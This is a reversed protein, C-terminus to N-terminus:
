RSGSRRRLRRTTPSPYVSRGSPPACAFTTADVVTSPASDGAGNFAVVRYFYRTNCTLGTDVYTTTDAALNGSVDVWGSTGNPSREVRFGTEDSVDDWTVTIQTSSDAVAAPNTPASPVAAASTFAVNVGISFDGGDGIVSTVGTSGAAAQVFDYAALMGGANTTDSREVAAAPTPTSVTKSSATGYFSVVTQSDATTTIAPATFTSNFVTDMAKASTAVIASPDGASYDLLVGLMGVSGVSYTFNYTTSGPTEAGTVAKSYVALQFAAGTTSLQTQVEVWGAPATVTGVNNRIRLGVLMVHGTAASAPLTFTISSSGANQEDKAVYTASVIEGLIFAYDSPLPTDGQQNTIPTADDLVCNVVWLDAELNQIPATIFTDSFTCNYVLQPGVNDFSASEGVQMAFFATTEVGIYCTDFVVEVVDGYEPGAQWVTQIYTDGDPADSEAAYLCDMWTNTIRLSTVPWATQITDGHLGTTNDIVHDSFWCNDITWTGSPHVMDTAHHVYCSHLAVVATQADPDVAPVATEFGIGVYHSALSWTESLENSADTTDVGFECDTFTVTTNLGLIRVWFNIDLKNVFWCDTFTVTADEVVVYGDFRVGTVDANSTYSINTSQVTLTSKAVTLGVESASAPYTM